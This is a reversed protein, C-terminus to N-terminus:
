PYLPPNKIRTDLTRDGRRRGFRQLETPYLKPNKIWNDRTRNGDADQEFSCRGALGTRRSLSSLSPDPIVRAPHARALTRRSPPLPECREPKPGPASPHCPRAHDPPLPKSRKWAAGRTAGAREAARRQHSQRPTTGPRVRKGRGQPRMVGTPWEPRLGLGVVFSTRM